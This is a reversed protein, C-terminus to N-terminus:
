DIVKNNEDTIVIKPLIHPTDKWDKYYGDYNGFFAFCNVHVHEGKIFLNAAGGNLEVCGSGREGPIVYTVIRSDSNVGNVHVAEYPILNAADMLDPDLTISGQYRTDAATVIVEKLKSKLVQILM